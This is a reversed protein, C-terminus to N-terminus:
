TFREIGALHSVGGFRIGGIGCWGLGGGVGGGLWALRQVM